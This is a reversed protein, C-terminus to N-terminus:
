VLEFRYEQDSNPYKEKDVKSFFMEAPRVYLTPNECYNYEDNNSYIVMVENTETSFAFDLARYFNGNFHRYIRNIYLKREEVIGDLNDESINTFKLLYEAKLDEIRIYEYRM